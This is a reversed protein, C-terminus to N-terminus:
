EKSFVTVRNRGGAKSQYLAQDAQDIFHELDIEEVSDWASVGLSITIRLDIKGETLNTKAVKERLREAANKAAELTSDPMLIIFEEGGYRALIDVTRIEDQCLQALNVLVQDGVLHGHTDNVKKFHDIDFLTLAIPSASRKSREIEKTAREFFFRRNYINTLPDMIALRELDAQYKKREAIEYSLEANKSELETILKRIALHTEVRAIVEDAQFPKIIYDAGGLEFARVKDFVEDLASIFIIPIDRTFPNSKLRRCVEYGDMDPMQIDLLILDPPSKEISLLARKGNPMPRPTYGREQLLDTLLRLNARTDDVILISAKYEEM